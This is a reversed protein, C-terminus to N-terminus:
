KIAQPLVPQETKYNNRVMHTNLSYQNQREFQIPKSLVFAINFITNTKYQFIKFHLLFYRWQLSECWVITTEYTWTCTFEIDLTFSHKGEFCPFCHIYAWRVCLWKLCCVWVFTMKFLLCYAWKIQVMQLYLCCIIQKYDVFSGSRVRVTPGYRVGRNASEPISTGSTVCHTLQEIFPRQLIHM